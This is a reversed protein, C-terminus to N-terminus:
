AMTLSKMLAKHERKRLQNREDDQRIKSSPAFATPNPNAKTPNDERKKWEKKGASEEKGSSGKSELM